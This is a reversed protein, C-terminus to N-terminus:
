STVKALLVHEPLLRVSDVYVDIPSDPGPLPKSLQHFHNANSSCLELVIILRLATGHTTPNGSPSGLAQITMRTRVKLQLNLRRGDSIM